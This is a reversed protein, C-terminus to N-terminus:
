AKEAPEETKRIVCLSIDYIQEILSIYLLFIRVHRSLLLCCLISFYVGNFVYNDWVGVKRKWRWPFGSIRTSTTKVNLASGCCACGCCMGGRGDMYACMCVLWGVM